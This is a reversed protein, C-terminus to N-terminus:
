LRDAVTSSLELSSTGSHCISLWICGYNSVPKVLQNQSASLLLRAPQYHWLVDVLYQPADGHLAKFVLCLIKYQIRQWIPLWHPTHLGPTIHDKKRTRACWGLQLEAHAAAQSPSPWPSWLPRLEWLGVQLDSSVTGTHSSFESHPLFLCLCNCAALLISSQLSCLHAAGMCRFTATLSSVSIDHAAPVPTLANNFEITRM